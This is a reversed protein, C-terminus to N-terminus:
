SGGGREQKSLRAFRFYVQDIRLEEDDHYCLKMVDLVKGYPTGQYARMEVRPLPEFMERAFTIQDELKSYAEEWSFPGARHLSDQEADKVTPFKDDLLYVM